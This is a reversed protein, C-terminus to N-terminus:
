KYVTLSALLITSHCPPLGYQFRCFASFNQNVTHQELLSWNYDTFMKEALLTAM